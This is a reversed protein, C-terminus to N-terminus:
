KYIEKLKDAAIAAEEYTIFLEPANKDNYLYQKDNWWHRKYKVIWRRYTSLQLTIEVRM